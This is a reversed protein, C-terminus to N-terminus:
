RPNGGLHATPFVEHIRRDLELRRLANPSGLDYRGTALEQFLDRLILPNGGSRRHLWEVMNVSERPIIGSGASAEVLERTEALHFPNVEVRVFRVLMRWFHGIDWAHESRPCIWVPSAEAVRELFSALKPTTWGIGDFVVTRGAARLTERLRQKRERLGLEAAELGVQPELGELIELWRESHPAVLLALSNRLHEILASKGVGAAGVILAHRGAAYLEQLRAIEKRRGTFPLSVLM